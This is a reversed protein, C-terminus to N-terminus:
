LGKMARDYADDTSEKKEETEELIDIEIVFPNGECLGEQLIDFIDDISKVIDDVTDFDDDDDDDTKVMTWGRMKWYDYKM